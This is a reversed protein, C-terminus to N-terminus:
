PSIIVNSGPAVAVYKGLATSFSVGTWNLSIPVTVTTWTLGDTSKLFTNTGSVCAIFQSNTADWTVGTINGTVGSTQQTWTTGTDAKEHTVILGQSGVAVYRALSSSYVISNLTKGTHGSLTTTTSVATGNASGIITPLSNNNGVLYYYPATGSGLKGLVMDSINYNGTINWITTAASVSTGYYMRTITASTNVPKTIIYFRTGLTVVNVITETASNTRTPSATWTSNNTSYYYPITGTWNTTAITATGFRTIGTVASGDFYVSQWNYGDDAYLVPSVSSESAIYFGNDGGFVHEMTGNIPMPLVTWTVGPIPVSSPTVSPTPSPPLSPTVSITPTPTVTPTVSATRTPTPTPTPPNWQGILLRNTGNESIAFFRSVNDTIVTNWFNTDITYYKWTIGDRSTMMRTSGSEAVAVFMGLSQIFTIDTWGNAEITANTSLTWNIADTSYMVKNTGTPAVAIFRKNGYAVGRFNALSPSSSVIWQSTNISKYAVAGNDGVLVGMSEVTSVNWDYAFAVDNWAATHLNTGVAANWAVGNGVSDAVRTSGANGVVVFAGRTRDYDIGRWSAGSPQAIPTNWNVGNNSWRIEGLRSVACFAYDSAAVDDWNIVGTVDTNTVWTTGTSSTLTNTSNYDMIVFQGIGASYAMAYWSGTPIPNYSILPDVTIPTVSPTISPTPSPTLSPSPTGSRTPTITPTVSVSITPTVTPTFSITPTPTPTPVIGGGSKLLFQQLAM